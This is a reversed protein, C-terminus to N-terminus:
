RRGFIILSIGRLLTVVSAELYAWAKLRDRYKYWYIYSSRYFWKLLLASQFRTSSGGGKHGFRFKSNWYMKYGMIRAREALIREEYYLFTNEDFAGVREFAERNVLLFAGSTRYVEIDQSGSEVNNKKLLRSIGMGSPPRKIETLFGIINPGFTIWNRKDSRAVVHNIFRSVNLSTCDLIDPNCIVFMEISANLNSVLFNNGRAYGTNESSIFLRDNECLLLEM